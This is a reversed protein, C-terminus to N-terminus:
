CLFIIWAVWALTRCLIYLVKSCVSPTHKIALLFIIENLVKIMHLMVYVIKKASCLNENLDIPCTDLGWVLSARYYVSYSVASFLQIEFLNHSRASTQCQRTFSRMEGSFDSTMTGYGLLGRLVRLHTECPKEVGSHHQPNCFLNWM